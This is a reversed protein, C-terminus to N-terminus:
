IRETKKKNIKKRERSTLSGRETNNYGNININIINIEKKFPLIIRKKKNLEEM